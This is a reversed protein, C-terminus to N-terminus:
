LKLKNGNSDMASKFNLFFIFLNLRLFLVKPKKKPDKELLLVVLHMTFLVVQPPNALSKIEIIHAKKLTSIEKMVEQLAADKKLEKPKEAEENKTEEKKETKEPEKAKLKADETKVEEKEVKKQADGYPKIEKQIEHCSYIAKVWTCLAKAVSSVMKVKEPSFDVNAEFIAKLKKITEESINNMDFDMLSKLFSNPDGLM